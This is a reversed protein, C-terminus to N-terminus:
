QIVIMLEVTLSTSAPERVQAIITSTILIAQDAILFAPFGGLLMVKSLLPVQRPLVIKSLTSSRDFPKILLRLGAWSIRHCSVDPHDRLTELTDKDLHGAFGTFAGRFVHDADSTLLGLADDLISLGGHEKFKVIYKDAILQATEGRPVILPAPESRKAPAALVAPLITLLTSLRM